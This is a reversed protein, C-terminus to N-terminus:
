TLLKEYSLIHAESELVASLSSKHVNADSTFIWTCGRETEGLMLSTIDQSWPEKISLQGLLVIACPEQEASTNLRDFVEFYADVYHQM